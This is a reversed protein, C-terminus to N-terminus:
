HEASHNTRQIQSIGGYRSEDRAKKPHNIPIPTKGKLSQNQKIDELKLKTKKEILKQLNIFSTDSGTIMQTLKNFFSNLENASDFEPQDFKMYFNEYDNEDLESSSDKSANVKFNDEITIDYRQM